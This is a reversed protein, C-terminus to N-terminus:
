AKAGRGADLASASKDLFRARRSTSTIASFIKQRDLMFAAPEAAKSGTFM